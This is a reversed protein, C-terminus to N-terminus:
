NEPPAAPVPLGCTAAIARMMAPADACSLAYTRGHTTRVCFAEHRNGIFATYQGLSRNSFLGLYGLFGDSGFVRCGPSGSPFPFVAAILALPLVLPRGGRRLTLQAGDLRLSRPSQRWCWVVCSAILALGPLCSLAVILFVAVSDAAGDSPWTAALAWLLLGAAGSLAPLLLLTTRRARRDFGVPRELIPRSSPPSSRKGEM